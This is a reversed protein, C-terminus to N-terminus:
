IAEVVTKNSSCVICKEKKFLVTMNDDTLRGVSILCLAAQPAYLVDRLMTCQGKGVRITITWIGIATIMLGNVGKLAQTNIPTFEVFDGQYFFCSSTAASDLHYPVGGTILTAATYEETPMKMPLEIKALMSYDSDGALENCLMSHDILTNVTEASSDSNSSSSDKAANVKELEKKRKGSKTNKDNAKNMLWRAQLVERAHPKHLWLKFMQNQGEQDEVSHYTNCICGGTCKKRKGKRENM